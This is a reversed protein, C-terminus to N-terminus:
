HFIDCDAFRLGINITHVYARLRVRARTDILVILVNCLFWHDVVPKDFATTHVTRDISFHM